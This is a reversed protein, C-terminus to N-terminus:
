AGLYEIFLTARGGCAMGLDLLSSHWLQSEKTELVELAKKISEFEITGGGVTGAISGDPYVLMKAGSKRPTSGATTCLTVLVAQRQDEYIKQIERIIEDM